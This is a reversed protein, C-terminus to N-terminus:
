LRIVLIYFFARPKLDPAKLTVTEDRGARGACRLGAGTFGEPNDADEVEGVSENTVLVYVFTLVSDQGVRQVQERRFAATWGPQLVARELQRMLGVSSGPGLTSGDAHRPDQEQRVATEECRTGFM